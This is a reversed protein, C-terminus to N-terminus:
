EFSGRPVGIMGAGRRSGSRVRGMVGGMVAEWLGYIWGGSVMVGGVINIMRVIFSLLPTRSDTISLSVPEIDFKFFIGPIDMHSVEQSQETVAYQNTSLTRLSNTSHYHTPVLSLFYQYKFFHEKTVAVVGDMPNILKPYFEGFSLENVYHSFNFANHDVHNGADKYGHGKATIHFDGQVKNVEMSGFIRCGEEGKGKWVATSRWGGRGGKGLVDYLDDSGESRDRALKHMGKPYWRTTEKRLVKGALIWDGVADQVNVHLNDCSMAVTIDVNIQLHKGVTNDVTFHQEQIGDLYVGFEAWVLLICAISVLLFMAGGRSTRIAYSPRTKPFADFTKVTASFSGSKEGFDKEDFVDM